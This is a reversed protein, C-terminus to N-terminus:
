IPRCTDFSIIFTNLMGPNLAVTGDIYGVLPPAFLKSGTPNQFEGSVIM